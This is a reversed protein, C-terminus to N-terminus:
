DGAAAAPSLAYRPPAQTLRAKLRLAPKEVLFWSLAACPLAVALSTVLDLRGHQALMQQLPFSYIYLGYSLDAPIKPAEIMGLRLVILPLGLFWLPTNLLLATAITLWSPARWDSAKLAAGSLFLFGNTGALYAMRFLDSHADLGLAHIAISGAAAALALVTLVKPTAQRLAGLAGLALYATFELRLTWLSGNVVGALPVSMFVGPLDYTVAYLTLNRLVYGYVEPASLYDSAKLMTSVPGIVFATVLLAALLGPFIRLARKALFTALSPTRALSGAVLYGSIAFFVGVGLAGLDLSTGIMAPPRGDLVRAHHAVVLIAAILRLYDFGGM